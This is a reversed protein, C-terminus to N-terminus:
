RRIFAVGNGYCPVTDRCPEGPTRVAPRSVPYLLGFRRGSPRSGRRPHRPSPWGPDPSTRFHRDHPWGAMSPVVVTSVPDFTFMRWRQDGHRLASAALTSSRAAASSIASQRADPQGSASLRQASGVPTEDHGVRTCRRHNGVALASDAVGNTAESSLRAFRTFAASEGSSMAASCSKSSIMARNHAIRSSAGSVLTMSSGVVSRRAMESPAALVTRSSRRHGLPSM